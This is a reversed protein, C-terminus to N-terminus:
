SSPCPHGSRLTTIARMPDNIWARIGEDQSPFVVLDSASMPRRAYQYEDVLPGAELPSRGQRAAPSSLSLAVLDPGVPDGNLRGAVIRALWFAMDSADSALPEEVVGRAEDISCSLLLAFAREPRSSADTVADPNSGSLIRPWRGDVGIPLIDAQADAAAALISVPDVGPFANQWSPDATSWPALTVFQILAEHRGIEDGTAGAIYALTAQNAPDTRQVDIARHAADIAEPELGSRLAAVALARWATDDWPNLRVAARLAEVSETSRGLELLTTGRSRAYLPFSPDFRIALDVADLAAQYQGAEQRTRASDFSLAAMTTAAVPIAAIAAAIVLAVTRSEPRHTAATRFSASWGAWFVIALACYGLAAPNSALGTVAAFTIAWFAPLPPRLRHWANFVAVVLVLLALVGVLGLETLTQVFLSDAHHPAYVAHDFYGVPQLAFQFTGPGSGLIPNRRWGEIASAWTELRMDLTTTALLRNVVSGAIGSLVLVGAIGAAALGILWGHRLRRVQTSLRGSYVLTVLCAVSAGAWMARGGSAFIVVASVGLATWVAVRGVFSRRSLEATALAPALLGVLLAVNHPHGFPDSPLPLSLPPPLGTANLWRAWTLGWIALFAVGLVGALLALGRITAASSMPSLRRALGFVAAFALSGYLAEASVRPLMSGITSVAIAAIVLLTAADVADFNRTLARIWLTIVIAMALVALVRISPVLWGASTGAFAFAFALVLTALYLRGSDSQRIQEIV